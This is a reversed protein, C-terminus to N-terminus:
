AIAGVPMNKFETPLASSMITPMMTVTQNGIM